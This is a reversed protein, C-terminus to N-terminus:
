GTKWPGQYSPVNVLRKLGLKLNIQMGPPLDIELYTNDIMKSVWQIKSDPSGYADNKGPYEGIEETYEVSTFCHEALSGAQIILSQSEIVGINLFHVEIMDTKVDTVLAAVDKPLGPRKREADFYRLPALLLGGNYLIQPAGLTLQILAETTVPNLQQWWHIHNEKPDTNDKRILEM